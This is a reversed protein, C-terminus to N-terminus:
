SRHQSTDDTVFVAFMNVPLLPEASQGGVGAGVGDDIENSSEVSELATSSHSESAVVASALYPCM